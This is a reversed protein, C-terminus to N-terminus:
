NPDASQSLPTPGTAFDIPRTVIQIAEIWAETLSGDLDLFTEFGERISVAPDTPNPLKFEFGEISTTYAVLESFEEQRIRIAHSSPVGLAIYVADRNARDRNTPRKVTIKASGFEKTYTTM